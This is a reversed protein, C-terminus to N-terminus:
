TASDGGIWLESAWKRAAALTPATGVVQYAFDDWEELLRPEDPRLHSAGRHVPRHRRYIDMPPRRRKNYAALPDAADIRPIARSAQDPPGPRRHKGM